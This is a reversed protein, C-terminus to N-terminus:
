KSYLFYTNHKVRGQPITAISQARLKIQHFSVNINKALWNQITIFTLEIWKQTSQTSFTISIQLFFFLYFFLLLHSLHYLLFSLSFLVHCIYSFSFSSLIHKYNKKMEYYLTSFSISLFHTFLSIFSINIIKRKITCIYWRNLVNIPM